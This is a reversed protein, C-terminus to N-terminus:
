PRSRITELDCLHCRVIEGTGDLRIIVRGSADDDTGTVTGRRNYHRPNYIHVRTGAAPLTTM